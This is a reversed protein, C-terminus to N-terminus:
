GAVLRCGGLVAAMAIWALGTKRKLSGPLVTYAQGLALNRRHRVSLGTRLCADLLLAERFWPQGAPIM